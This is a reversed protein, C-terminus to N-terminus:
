NFLKQKFCREDRDARVHLRKWEIMLHVFRQNSQLVIAIRPAPTTRM